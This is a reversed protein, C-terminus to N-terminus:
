LTNHLTKLIFLSRKAIQFCVKIACNASNERIYIVRYLIYTILLLSAFNQTECALISLLNPHPHSQQQQTQQEPSAIISIVQPSSTATMAVNTTRSVCSKADRCASAM